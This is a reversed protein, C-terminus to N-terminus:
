NFQAEMKYVSKNITKTKTQSKQKTNNFIQLEFFHSFFCFLVFTSIIKNLKLNMKKIKFM